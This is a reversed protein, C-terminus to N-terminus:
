DARHIAFVAGLVIAGGLAFGAPFGFREFALALEARDARAAEAQVRSEAFTRDRVRGEYTLEYAEIALPYAIEREADMDHTTTGVLVGRCPAPDGPELAVVDECEGVVPAPTALTLDEKRPMPDFLPVPAAGKVCASLALVIM